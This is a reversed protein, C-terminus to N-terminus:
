PELKQITERNIPGKGPWAGIIKETAQDAVLNHLPCLLLGNECQKMEAGRHPCRKGRCPTGIMTAVWSAWAPSLEEKRHYSTRRYPYIGTIHRHCQRRRTHIGTFRWDWLNPNHNVWVAYSTTGDASIEGFPITKIFRTDIHYHPEATGFQPDSHPSGTVPVWITKKNYLHVLRACPVHYTKGVEVTTPTEKKM